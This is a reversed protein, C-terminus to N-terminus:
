SPYRLSPLFCPGPNLPNLAHALLAINFTSLNGHMQTARYYVFRAVLIGVDTAVM